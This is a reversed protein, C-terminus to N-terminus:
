SQGEPHKRRSSVSHFDCTTSTARTPEWRHHHHHHHHNHHHHTTHPSSTSSTHRHTHTHTHTHARARTHTHTHGVQCGSACTVYVCPDMGAAFPKVECSSINAWSQTLVGLQMYYEQWCDCDGLDYAYNPATVSSVIPSIHCQLSSTNPAQTPAVTEPPVPVPCAQQTSPTPLAPAGCMGQNAVPPWETAATTVQWAPCFVGSAPATSNADLFVYNPTLVGNHGHSTTLGGSCLTANGESISYCHGDMVNWSSESDFSPCCLTGGAVFESVATSYNMVASSAADPSAFSACEGVCVCSGTECYYAVSPPQFAVPCGAFLSFTTGNTMGHCDTANGTESANGVTFLV